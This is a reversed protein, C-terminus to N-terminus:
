VLANIQVSDHILKTCAQIHTCQVYYTHSIFLIHSLSTLSTFHLSFVIPM